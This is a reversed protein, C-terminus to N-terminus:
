KHISMKCAGEIMMRREFRENQNVYDIYKFKESDTIKEMYSLAKELDSQRNSRLYCQYCFWSMTDYYQSPFDNGDASVMEKFYMEAESFFAEPNEREEKETSKGLGKKIEITEKLNRYYEVYYWCMNNYLRLKHGRDFILENESYCEMARKIRAVAHRLMDAGLTWYFWSLFVNIFLYNRKDEDGAANVMLGECKDFCKMANITRGFAFECQGARFHIAYREGYEENIKEYKSKASKFDHEILKIYAEEMAKWYNIKEEDDGPAIRKLMKKIDTLKSRLAEIATNRSESKYVNLARARYEKYHVYLDGGDLFAHPLDYVNFELPSLGGLSKRYYDAKGHETRSASRLHKLMSDNNSLDRSLIRFMEKLSVSVAGGKYSVLHELEGWIDQLLTRLQIEAYLTDEGEHFQLKYHLSKYGSVKNEITVSAESSYLAFRDKIQKILFEDTYNFIKFEVIQYRAPKKKIMELLKDHLTFIQDEYLCLIRLGAVDHIKDLGEGSKRCKYYISDASKVRIKTSYVPFHEGRKKYLQVELEDLIGQYHDINDKLYTVVDEHSVAPSM